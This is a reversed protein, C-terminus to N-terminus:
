MGQYLAMLQELADEKYASNPYRQVFDLLGSIKAQPDPQQIAGVYSNYEAPDKIEKKPAAPAPAGTSPAPTTAQGEVLVPAALALATLAILMTLLFKRM